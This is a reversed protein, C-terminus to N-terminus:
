GLVRGDRVSVVRAYGPVDSGQGPGRPVLPDWFPRHSVVEVAESGDPSVKLRLPTGDVCPVSNTWWPAPHDDAFSAISPAPAAPETRCSAVSFAIILCVPATWM